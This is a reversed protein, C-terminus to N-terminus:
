NVRECSLILVDHAEQPDNVAKIEYIEGKYRVFHEPLITLEPNYRIRFRITKEANAALASFYERGGVHTVAAWVPERLPIYEIRGDDRGSEENFGDTKECIEIRKNMKGVDYM